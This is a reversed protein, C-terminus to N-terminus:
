ILLSTQQALLSRSPPPPRAAGDANLIDVPRTQQHEIVAILALSPPPYEDSSPPYFLSKEVAASIQKLSCCCARELRSRDEPESDAEQQPACCTPGVLGIGDPLLAGSWAGAPAGIVVILITTTLFRMVVQSYLLM